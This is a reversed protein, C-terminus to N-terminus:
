KQATEEEDGFAAYSGRRAGGSTAAAGGGGGGVRRWAAALADKVEVDYWAIRGGAGRGRGSSTHLAPASSPVSASM